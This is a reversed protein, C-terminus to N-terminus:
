VDQLLNLITGVAEGLDTLQNQEDILGMTKLVEMANEFDTRDLVNKGIKLAKRIKITRTTGDVIIGMIKKAMKPLRDIIPKFQEILSKTRPNIAFLVNEKRLKDIANFGEIDEIERVSLEDMMDRIYFTNNYEKSQAVELLQYEVSKKDIEKMYEEVIGVNVNHPYLLDVELHKEVLELVPGENLEKASDASELQSFYKEQFSFTFTKARSKLTDSPRKTLLLAVRCLAADSVVIKFQKYSLEELGKAHKDKEFDKGIQDGFSSIASLFGSVLTGDIPINSFSYEFISVGSSNLVLMYTISEADTLRQYMQRLAARRRERRPIVVTKRIVISGIIIVAIAAAIFPLLEVIQLLYTTVEVEIGSSSSSAYYGEGDFEAVVKYNGPLLNEFDITTSIFGDENTVGTYATSVHEDNENYIHFDVSVGSLPNDESDTLTTSYVYEGKILEGQSFANFIIKTTKKPLITRESIVSTQNAYIKGNGAYSVNVTLTSVGSDPIEHTFAVSGDADAYKTYYLTITDYILEYELAVGAYSESFSANPSFITTNIELEQGLRIESPIEEIEFFTLWRPLIDVTIQASGYDIEADGLYEFQVTIQEHEDAIEQFTYEASGDQDTTLERILFPQTAGDYFALIYILKGDVSRDEGINLQLDFTANYGVQVFDPPDVISITSPIKGLIPKQIESEAALFLGQGSFSAKITLTEGEYIEPINFEYVGKGKSDTEVLVNYQYDASYNISLLISKGMIGTGNIYSLKASVSLFPGIRIKEPVTIAIQTQYKPLITFDLDNSVTTELDTGTANIRVTYDGAFLGSLEANVSYYNAVGRNMMGGCVFGSGNIIKYQVASYKYGNLSGGIDTFVAASIDLSDGIYLDQLPNTDIYLPIPDIQVSGTIREPSYGTKSIWISLSYNSYSSSYGPSDTAHLNTTDLTLNYIGKDEPEFTYAYQEFAYTLEESSNFHASIIADRIPEGSSLNTVNFQIISSSTDNVVPINDRYLFLNDSINYGGDLVEIKFKSVAGSINFWLTNITDIPDHYAKGFSFTLNYNNIQVGATELAIDYTGNNYDTKSHFENWSYGWDQGWLNETDDNYALVTAQSIGRDEGFTINYEFQFNGLAGSAVSEGDPDSVISLDTKRWMEFTDRYWGLRTTQDDETTDNWFTILEYMGVGEDWVRWGHTKNNDVGTYQYTRSSFNSTMTTSNYMTINFNGTVSASNRVEHSYNAYELHYYKDPSSYDEHRISSNLLYNRQLANVTWIGSGLSYPEYNSPYEISVNQLNDKTSEIEYSATRAYEQPVNVSTINWDASNLENGDYAPLNEITLEYFVYKNTDHPDASFEELSDTNNFTVSWQCDSSSITEITASANAGDLSEKSVNLYASYSIQPNTYGTLQFEIDIDDLSSVDFTNTSYFREFSGGPLFRGELPEDDPSGIEYNLHLYFTDISLRQNFDVTPLAAMGDYKSAKELGIYFYLQDGEFMSAFHQPFSINLSVRDGYSSGYTLKSTENINWRMLDAANQSTGVYSVLTLDEQNEPGSGTLDTMLYDFELEGTSWWDHHTANISIYDWQVLVDDDGSNPSDVVAGFDLSHWGKRYGFEGLHDTINYTRTWFGHSTCNANSDDYELSNYNADGYDRGNIDETGDIFQENIRAKVSFEDNGELGYDEVAWSLTISVSDAEFPIYFYNQWAISPNGKLFGSTVDIGTTLVGPSPSWDAYVTSWGNWDGYIDEIKNYNPDSEFEEDLAPETTEEEILEGLVLEEGSHDFNLNESSYYGKFDSPLSTDISHYEMWGYNDTNDYSFYVYDAGSDRSSSYYPSLPNWHSNTDWLGNLNYDAFNELPEYITPIDLKFSTGQWNEPINMELNDDLDVSRQIAEYGGKETVNFQSINEYYIPGQTDKATGEASEIHENDIARDSITDVIQNNSFNSQLSLSSLFLCTVVVSCLIARTLQKGKYDHKFHYM